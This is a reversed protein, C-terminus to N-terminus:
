LMCAYSATHSSAQNACQHAPRVHFEPLRLPFPPSTQSSSLFLIISTRQICSTLHLPCTALISPTFPLLYLSHHDPLPSPTPPTPIITFSSHSLISSTLLTLSLSSQQQLKQLPHVSTSRHTHEAFHFFNLLFVTM